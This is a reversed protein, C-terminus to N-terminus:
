TESKPSPPARSNLNRTPITDIFCIESVIVKGDSPRNYSITNHQYEFIFQANVFACAACSKSCHSSSEEENENEHNCKEHGHSCEAHGHRCNDQGHQYCTHEHVLQSFCFLTIYCLLGSLILLKAGLKDFRMFTFM